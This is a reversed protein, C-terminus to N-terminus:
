LEDAKGEIAPLAPASLSPARGFNIVIGGGETGGIQVNEGYTRPKLKAAYWQRAAVRVRAASATDSDHAADSIEVCEDALTDALM